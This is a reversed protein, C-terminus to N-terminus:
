ISKNRTTSAVGGPRDAATVQITLYSGAAVSTQGTYTWLGSGPATEVAAGSELTTGAVDLISVQVSVVGFADRAVIHIPDGASGHYDALGVSDISPLSLFDAVAATFASMDKSEAMAQYLARLSSDAMVSKGFGAAQKFRERHAAQQATPEATFNPKRGAFTLGDRHRFVLEGLAGRAEEFMPNLKVKM